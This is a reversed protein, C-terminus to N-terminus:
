PVPEPPLPIQALTGLVGHRLSIASSGIADVVYGDPLTKGPALEHHQEGAALFVRPQGDIGTFRGLYRYSPPPADPPPAATAVPPTIPTAPPPAPAASAAARTAFPDGRLDPWRPRPLEALLPADRGGPTAPWRAESVAVADPSAPWWLALATLVLSVALLLRWIPRLRPGAQLRRGVPLAAAGWPM